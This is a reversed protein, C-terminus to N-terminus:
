AAYALQSNNAAVQNGTKVLGRAGRRAIAQRGVRDFGSMGLRQVWNGPHSWLYLVPHSRM